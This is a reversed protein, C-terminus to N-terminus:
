RRGANMISSSSRAATLGLLTYRTSFFAPIRNGRALEELIEMDRGIAKILRKLEARAFPEDEIILVKM